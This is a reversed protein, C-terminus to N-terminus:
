GSWFIVGAAVVILALIAIRYGRVAIELQREPNGNEDRKETYRIAFFDPQHKRRPPPPEIRRDASM